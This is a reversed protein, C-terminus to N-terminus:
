DPTVIIEGKFEQRREVMENHTACSLDWRKLQFQNRYWKECDFSLELWM